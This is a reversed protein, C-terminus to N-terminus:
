DFNPSELRYSNLVEDLGLVPPRYLRASTLVRWLVRIGLGLKQWGKAFRWHLEAARIWDGRAPNQVLHRRNLLWHADSCTPASHVIGHLRLNQLAHKGQQVSRAGGSVHGYDHYQHLALVSLTADVIPIGRRLCFAILAGDYGARGIVVQPLGTWIGRPFIFYDSGSPPHLSIQGFNALNTLTELSIPQDMEIRVGEHLDIRQGVMLFRPFSICRICSIISPMVLIDCNLYIQIENAANLRAHEAIAGFFPIGSDTADIDAVHKIRLDRCVALAGEAEGYLIVEAKPHVKMWSRIANLQISKAIGTFPKPSSLFTIM